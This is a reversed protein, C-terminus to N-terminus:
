RPVQLDIDHLIRSAGLQLSVDSLLVTPGGAHRDAPEAPATRM